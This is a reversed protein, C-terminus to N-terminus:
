FLLRLSQIGFKKLALIVESQEFKLNGQDRELLDTQQVGQLIPLGSFSLHTNTDTGNCEWYRAILGEEEAPKLCTLITNEESSHIFSCLDIPLLGVKGMPVPVHLLENNDEWGFHVADVPDFGGEHGKM